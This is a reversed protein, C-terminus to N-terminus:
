NASSLADSPKSAFPQKCFVGFLGGMVTVNVLHVYQIVYTCINHAATVSEMTGEGELEM